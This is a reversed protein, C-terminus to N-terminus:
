AWCSDKAIADRAHQNMSATFSVYIITAGLLNVINIISSLPFLAFILIDGAM